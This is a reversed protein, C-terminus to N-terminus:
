LNAMLPFDGLLTKQIDTKLNTFKIISLKKYFTLSNFVQQLLEEDQQYSPHLSYCLGEDEREELIIIEEDTYFDIAKNIIDLSCSEYHLVINDEFLSEAFWQIKSLIKSQAIYKEPFLTYIYVLTLWFSDIFPWILSCLFLLGNSKNKLTQYKVMESETFLSGREEMFELTREFDEYSKIKVSDQIFVKDIMKSLFQVKEWIREKTVGTQEITNKGFGIFSVGVVMEKLFIHVISNKYYALMLINKYDIKPSVFPAFVDRKKRVFGTLLNMAISADGNVSSKEPIPANRVQLEQYIYEMQKLMNEQSIGKRHELLVSALPATSMIVSHHSHSEQITKCLSQCVNKKQENTISMLHHQKIGMMESYTKISIKEGINLCVKGFQTRIYTASTVFRSLSEKVKEEGVLEYPFTEGELVRDYNITMPIIDIDETRGNFYSDLVSEIVFTNAKVLIGSKERTEEISVSITQKDSM